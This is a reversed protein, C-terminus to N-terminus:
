KSFTVLTRSYNPHGQINHFSSQCNIKPWMNVHWISTVRPWNPTILPMRGAGWVQELSGPNTGGGSTLSPLSPSVEGSHQGKWPTNWKAELPSGPSPNPQAAGDECALGTGKSAPVSLGPLPAKMQRCVKSAIDKALQTLKDNQQWSQNFTQQHLLM